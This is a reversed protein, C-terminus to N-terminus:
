GRVFTMAYVQPVSPSWPSGKCGNVWISLKKGSAIATMAMSLMRDAEKADSMSLGVVDSKACGDPNNFNGMIFIEGGETHVSDPTLIGAHGAAHASGDILALMAVAFCLTARRKVFLKRGM